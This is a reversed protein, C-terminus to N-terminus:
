EKSAVLTEEIIYEKIKKGDYTVSTVKWGTLIKEYTHGNEEVTGGEFKIAKNDSTTDGNKYLVIKRNTYDNDGQTQEDLIKQTTTISKGTGDGSKYSVDLTIPLSAKSKPVLGKVAMIVITFVVISLGFDKLFYFAAWLVYGLISGFFGFINAM